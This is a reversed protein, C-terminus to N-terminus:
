LRRVPIAPLAEVSQRDLKLHVVNAEIRDIQSIPITVQMKDWPLGKRLVLHTIYGTEPDVLFEDVHGIRGDTARVRTGRRVALEYPSITQYEESIIKKAPVVYPWILTLRPDSAFHPVNRQVFDTQNFPDLAATEELTCNLLILEPTTEKIWSVPVLREIQSGSQEKVVMHTVKETTPNLVVYTSRGFRGDSCHVDANLPIDM